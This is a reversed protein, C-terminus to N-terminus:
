ATFNPSGRRLSSLVICRKFKGRKVVSTGDAFYTTLVFRHTGSKYKASNITIYKSGTSPGGAAKYTKTRGKDIKLTYKAPTGNTYNVRIRFKRAQCKKALALNVSAVASPTVPPNPPVPPVPPVWHKEASATVVLTLHQYIDHCSPPEYWWSCAHGDSDVWGIWKDWIDNGTVTIKDTGLANGAWTFKAQGHVDTNVTQTLGANPGSVIKFTLPFNPLIKVDPSGCTVYTWESNGPDIGVFSGTATATVTHSTNIPNDATPPDLTLCLGYQWAGATAASFMLCVITTFLAIAFIAKNSVRFRTTASYM